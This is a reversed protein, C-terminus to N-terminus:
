YHITVGRADLAPIHTRISEDSLPNGQLRIVDGEGLGENAVLPGIDEIRNYALRVDTLNALGALESIDVIRQGDLHLRALNAAAGIGALRRVPAYAVDWRWLFARASASLATLTLIDDTSVAGDASKGLQVLVRARLAADAFDVGGGAYVTAGRERLARVHPGGASDGGVGGVGGVHFVDGSGINAIAALPSLDASRPAVM